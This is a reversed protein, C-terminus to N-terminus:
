AAAVCRPCRGFLELLHSSIQYGTQQELSGILERLGCNDFSILAGCITCIIHHRHGDSISYRHCEELGHIRQFLGLDCLLKVTRFISAIGPSEDRQLLWQEIETVSFAGSLAVAARLVALRPQTVKYGDDAIQQAMSAVIPPLANQQQKLLRSM